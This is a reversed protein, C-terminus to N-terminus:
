QAGKKRANRILKVVGTWQAICTELVSPKVTEVDVLSSLTEDALGVGHLYEMLMAELIGDRAMMARLDELKTMPPKDDDPPDGAGLLADKAKDLMEPAVIDADIANDNDIFEPAADIDRRISQDTKYADNMEISMIGWKSLTNKIVTKLAMSDFNTQWPSAKGGRYSQSFRKAHEEVRTKTWMELKTYGAVTKFAFVYAYAPKSEDVLSWDIIAEGTEDWGKFAEINVTRANMKAYQGTRQALQIYGKFGMQFQGVKVGKDKYPVIWAFGLNKDVPLDLTAATMAAGIISAPDCDAGLTAGVSIVSAVFQEARRGLVQKFREAYAPSQMLSKLTVKKKEPAAAGTTAVSQNTENMTNPQKTETM